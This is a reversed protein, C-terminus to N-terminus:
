LRRTARVLKVAGNENEARILQGEHDNEWRNVAHLARDLDGDETGIREKHLFDGGSRLEWFEATDAAHDFIEEYKLGRPDTHENEPVEGHGFWGERNDWRHLNRTGDGGRQLPIGVADEILDYVKALVKLVPEAPLWPDNGDGVVCTGILEIQVHCERNTETGGSPNLLTLAMEGFPLFQGIRIPTDEAAPQNTLHFPPPKGSAKLTEYGLMITPTGTDSVFRSLSGAWHGETTHQVGKAPVFLSASEFARKVDPLHGGDRVCKEVRIGEVVDPLMKRKITVM